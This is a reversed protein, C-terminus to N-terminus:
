RGPAFVSRYQPKLAALVARTVPLTVEYDGESYPGAQYPAILVGIRDFQQGNSSGLIITSEM